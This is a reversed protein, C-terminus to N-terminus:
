LPQKVAPLLKNLFTRLSWAKSESALGLRVIVMKKSPIIVVNQGQYGSAYFIDNPLEPWRVAPTNESKSANLWFHAGYMLSDSNIAPTKTYNVWDSLLIQEQNWYGNHLYLLGFKAWDRATAYSFSSGVWYGKADPEIVMSNMGIKYILRNYVNNFTNNQQKNHIIKSLVNSTGSSYYWTKGPDDILKQSVPSEVVSYSNFLMNTALSPKGYEEEFYLGSSMQLLHNVTINKRDDNWDELLNAEQLSLEGNKIMVGIYASLLSKTMSWGLFRTNENFGPAYQEAIVTDNYIVLIARTNQLMNENPESFAYDLANQLLSYDIVSVNNYVKFNNGYPYNVSDSLNQPKATIGVPKLEQEKNESYLTCGLGERFVATKKFMGLVSTHVMKHQKDVEKTVIVFDSLDEEVCHQISRESVFTCSCLNKANYGNLIPLIKSGYYVGFGILVLLLLLLIKKIKM